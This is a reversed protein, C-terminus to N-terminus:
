HVPLPTVAGAQKAPEAPYKRQAVTKAFDKVEGQLAEAMM